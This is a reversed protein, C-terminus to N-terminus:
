LCVCVGVMVVVRESLMVTALAAPHVRVHHNLFPLFALLLFVRRLLLFSFPLVPLLCPRPIGLCGQGDAAAAAAAAADSTIIPYLGAIGQSIVVFRLLLSSASLLM